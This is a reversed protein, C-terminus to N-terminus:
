CPVKKRQNARGPNKGQMVKTIHNGRPRRRNKSNRVPHTMIQVRVCMCVCVCVCVCVYVCVCVCVCVCVACLCVCDAHPHTHPTSPDTHVSVSLVRTQTDLRARMRAGAPTHTQSPSPTQPSETPPMRTWALQCISHLSGKSDRSCWGCSKLEPVCVGNRVYPICAHM